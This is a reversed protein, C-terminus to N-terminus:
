AHALIEPAEAVLLPSQSALQSGPAGVLRYSELGLLGTRQRDCQHGSELAGHEHERWRHQVYHDRNARGPEIIAIQGPADEGCQEDACHDRRQLRDLGTSEACAM